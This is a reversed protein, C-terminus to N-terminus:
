RNAIGMAAGVVVTLVLSGIISIQLQLGLVRFVVNLLILVVVFTALQAMPSRPNM